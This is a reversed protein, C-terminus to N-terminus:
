LHVFEVLDLSSDIVDDSSSSSLFFLKKNESLEKKGQVHGHFKNEAKSDRMRNVAQVVKHM